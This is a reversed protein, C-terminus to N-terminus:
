VTGFVTGGVIRSDDANRVDDRFGINTGAGYAATINSTFNLWNGAGSLYTNVGDITSAIQSRSPNLFNNSPGSGAAGTVAQFQNRQNLVGIVDNPYAPSKVRNLIVAMVYAQEEPSNPLSEAVTAAVLNDWEEDSLERGLFEEAGARAQAPAEGSLIEDVQANTLQRRDSPPAGEGDAPASRRTDTVRPSSPVNTDTNQGPVVGLLMPHQAERGDLFFGFVWEGEDPVFNMKGYTGNVCMAWPLDDDQVDDLEEKDNTDADPVHPPHIGFVRVKVRGNNLPDDKNVVEGMFFYPLIGTKANFM